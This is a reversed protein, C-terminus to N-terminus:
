FLVTWAVRHHKIISPHKHLFRGQCPDHNAAPRVIVNQM